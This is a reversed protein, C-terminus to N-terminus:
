SERRSRARVPSPPAPADEPKVGAEASLLSSITAAAHRLAPLVAALQRKRDGANRLILSSMAAEVRGEVFIPVAVAWIRSQYVEDLYSEDAFAYGTKRAASIKDHLSTWLADETDWRDKSKRLRSLITDLEDKPLHALYAIGVGTALLPIRAGLRGPISMGNASRNTHAIVMADREFVAVNSPWGIEARLAEVHPQALQVLRSTADFGRSLSKTRATVGFAADDTQRYVYGAEILTEIIRVVTPQPLKLRKAIDAASIPGSESVVQLVNLGRIIARVPEFSPM